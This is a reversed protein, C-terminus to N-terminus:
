HLVSTVVRMMCCVSLTSVFTHYTSVDASTHPGEFNLVHDSFAAHGAAAPEGRPAASDTCAFYHLTHTCMRANALFRSIHAPCSSLENSTTVIM